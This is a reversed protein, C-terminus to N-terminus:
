KGLKLSIECLVGLVLGFFVLTSGQRLWLTSQKMSIRDFDPALVDPAVVFSGIIAVIGLVVAVFGVVRGLRTFM